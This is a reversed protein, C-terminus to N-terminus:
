PKKASPHGPPLATASPHGPPLASSDGAAAGASHASLAKADNALAQVREMASDALAKNKTANAVMYVGFWPSAQGPAAAIAERYSALAKDMDKARYAANGADLAAVVAAPLTPANDTATAAGLPQKGADAPSDAADSKGCASMLMAASLSLTVALIRPTMSM